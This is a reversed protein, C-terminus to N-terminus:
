ILTLFAKIISQNSNLALMLLIEAIDHSAFAKIIMRIYASAYVFLIMM